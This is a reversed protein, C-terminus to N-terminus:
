GIQRRSKSVVGDPSLGEIRDPTRRMISTGDGSVLVETDDSVHIISGDGELYTTSDEARRTVTGDAGIEVWVDNVLVRVMADDVEVGSWGKGKDRRAIIRDSRLKLQVDDTRDKGRLHVFVERDLPDAGLGAKGDSPFWLRPEERKQKAKDRHFAILFHANNWITRAGERVTTSVSNNM